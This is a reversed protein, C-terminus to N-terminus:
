APVMRAKITISVKNGVILSYATMGFAKRDITTRATLEIAEDSRAQAPPKAFTVTLRTPKTVGRATITGDVTSSKPGTMTMARGTFRVTPHNAIDFFDPGKLRRLTVNDGATLASADLVVNLDITDLRDPRLTIGGSMKPFRATKSFLGVFAVRASVDSGAQDLRYHSSGPITAAALV